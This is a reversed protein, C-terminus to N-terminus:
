FKARGQQVAETAWQQGSIGAEAAEIVVGLEGQAEETLLQLLNLSLAHLHAGEERLLFSDESLKEEETLKLM